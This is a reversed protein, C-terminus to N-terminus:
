TPEADTRHSWGQQNGKATASVKRCSRTPTRSRVGPLTGLFEIFSERGAFRVRRQDSPRAAVCRRNRFPIRSYRNFEDAVEGLPRQQFKIQAAAM